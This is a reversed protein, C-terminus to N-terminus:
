RIEFIGCVHLRHCYLTTKRNIGFYFWQAKKEMEERKIDDGKISFQLKVGM